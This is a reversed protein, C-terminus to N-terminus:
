NSQFDQEVVIAIYMMGLMWLINFQWIYNITNAAAPMINIKSFYKFIFHSGCIMDFYIYGNKVRAYLCSYDSCSADLRNEELVNEPHCIYPADFNRDM